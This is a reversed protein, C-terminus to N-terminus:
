RSSGMFSIWTDASAIRREIVRLLSGMPGSSFKQNRCSAPPPMQLTSREKESVIRFGRFIRWTFHGSPRFNNVM